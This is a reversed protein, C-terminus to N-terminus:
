YSFGSGIQGQWVNVTKGPRAHKCNYSSAGSSNRSKGVSGIDSGSRGFLLYRHLADM